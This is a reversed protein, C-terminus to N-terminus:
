GGNPVPLSDMWEVFGETLIAPVDVIGRYTEDAINNLQQAPVSKSDRWDWGAVFSGKLQDVIGLRLREIEAVLNEIRRGSSDFLEALADAAEHALADGERDLLVQILEPIPRM